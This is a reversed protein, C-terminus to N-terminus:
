SNIVSQLAGRFGADRMREARFEQPAGPSQRM